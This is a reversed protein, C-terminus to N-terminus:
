LWPSLYLRAHKRTGNEGTGVQVRRCLALICNLLYCTGVVVGSLVGNHKNGKEVVYGDVPRRSVM